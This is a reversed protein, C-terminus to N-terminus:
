AQFSNRWELVEPEAPDEHHRITIGRDDDFLYIPNGLSIQYGNGDDDDPEEQCIVEGLIAVHCAEGDMEGLYPGNVDKTEGPPIEVDEAYGQPARYGFAIVVFSTNNTVKMFAELLVPIKHL